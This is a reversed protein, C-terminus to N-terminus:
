AKFMEPKYFLKRGQAMADNALLCTAASELGEQGDCDPQRGERICGIFDELESLYDGERRGDTNGAAPRYM